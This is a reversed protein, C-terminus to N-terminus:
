NQNLFIGQDRVSAILPVQHSTKRHEAPDTDLLTVSGKKPNIEVAYGSFRDGSRLWIIYKKNLEFDYWMGSATEEATNVEDRYALVASEILIFGVGIILAWSAATESAGAGVLLFLLGLFAAFMAGVVSGLFIFSIKALKIAAFPTAVAFIILMVGSIILGLNTM